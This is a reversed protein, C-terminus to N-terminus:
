RIEDYGNLPNVIMAPLIKEPFQQHAKGVWEAHEPQMISIVGAGIDSRDLVELLQEPTEIVGRGEIGKFLYSLSSDGSPDLFKSNILSDIARIRDGM